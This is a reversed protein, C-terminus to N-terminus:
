RTIGHLHSSSARAYQLVKALETAVEAVTVLDACLLSMADAVLERDETEAPPKDHISALTQDRRGDRDPPSPQQDHGIRGRQHQGTLWSSTQRVAQPLRQALTQLAGLVTDVDSPYTYGSTPGSSALTLHNLVRIAEASQWASEGPTMPHSSSDIPSPSIKM